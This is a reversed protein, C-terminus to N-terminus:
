LMGHKVMANVVVPVTQRATVGGGGRIAGVGGLILTMSILVRGLESCSKCEPHVCMSFRTRPYYELSM